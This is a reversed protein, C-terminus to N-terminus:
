DGTDFSVLFVVITRNVVVHIWLKCILFQIFLIAVTKGGSRKRLIPLPFRVCFALRSRNVGTGFCVACNLGKIGYVSFFVRFPIYELRNYVGLVVASFSNVADLFLIVFRV